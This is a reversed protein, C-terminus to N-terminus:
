RFLITFTKGKTWDPMPMAHLASRAAIDYILIGSSNDINFSQIAGNWGVTFTIQCQASKEIGAPPRWHKVLEQHLLEQQRYAEIAHPTAHIQLPGQQNNQVPISQGGPLANPLTTDMKEQTSAKRSHQAQLMQKKPEPVKKIPLTPPIIKEPILKKITEKPPPSVVATKKPEEIKKAQVAKKLDVSQMVTLSKHTAVDPSAKIRPMKKAADIGQVRGAGVTAKNNNLLVPNLTPVLVIPIDGQLLARDITVYVQCGPEKYWFFLGAMGFLHLVGSLIILHIFIQYRKHVSSQQWPLM